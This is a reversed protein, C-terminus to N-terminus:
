ALSYRVITSQAEEPTLSRKIVVSLERSLDIREGSELVKIVPRCALNRNTTIVCGIEGTSLLV